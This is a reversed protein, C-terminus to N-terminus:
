LKPPLSHCLCPAPRALPTSVRILTRLAAPDAALLVVLGQPGPFRVHRVSM